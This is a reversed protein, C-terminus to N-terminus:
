PTELYKRIKEQVTKPYFSSIDKLFSPNAKDIRVILKKDAMRKAIIKTTNPNSGWLDQLNKL